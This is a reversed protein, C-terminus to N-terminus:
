DQGVHPRAWPRRASCPWGLNAMLTPFLSKFLRKRKPARWVYCFFFKFARAGARWDARAGSQRERWPLCVVAHAPEEGLAERVLGAQVLRPEAEVAACAARTCLGAVKRMCLSLQAHWYLILCVSQMYLPLIQIGTAIFIASFLMHM